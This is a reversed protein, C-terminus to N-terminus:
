IIVQNKPRTGKFVAIVSEAIQIAMRQMGEINSAGLHPTLIVNDMKCLPNRPDIPEKEFVDLGAGAVKGKKIAKILEKEDIIRGRSTNIIRVGDKMLEFEKKGSRKLEDRIEQLKQELIAKSDYLLRGILTSKGHDKHGVVVLNIKPLSM